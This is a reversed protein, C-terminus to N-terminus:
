EKDNLTMSMHGGEIVEVKWTPPVLTTTTEEEIIAPGQLTDGLALTERRIIKTSQAKGDFYVNRERTPHDERDEPDPLAPRKLLGLAAVRLNAVEVPTTSSSHGYQRLYAADFAKRVIAPDVDGESVRITLVYEQGEYRLDAFREFSIHHKPMGEDQLYEFGEVELAQYEQTLKAPDQADWDGYFTKKFDHRMDTQLM